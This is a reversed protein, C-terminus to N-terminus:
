GNERGKGKEKKKPRGEGAGDEEKVATQRVLSQTVAGLEMM